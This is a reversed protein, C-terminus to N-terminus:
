RNNKFDITEGHRARNIAAKMEAATMKSVDVSSVVGPKQSMGNEPPRSGRAQQNKTINDRVASGTAAATYQLLEDMHISKFAREVPWGDDVILKRFEPNQLEGQLDFGPYKQKLQESQQRIDDHLMRAQKEIRDQKQQELLKKNQIKVLQMERYQEVTLGARDAADEWFSDDQELVDKLKDPSDVNYKAMVLEMADASAAVRSEMEAIKRQASKTRQDLHERITEEYPEKYDGKILERFSNRAEEKPDAYGTDGESSDAASDNNGTAFGTRGKDGDDGAEAAGGAAGAAGAGAAGGDFLHLNLKHKFM